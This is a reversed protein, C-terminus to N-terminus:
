SNSPVVSSGPSSPTVETPMPEQAVAQAAQLPASAPKKGAKKKAGKMIPASKKTTKATPAKTVAAKKAAAKNRAPAAKEVARDATATAAKKQARRKRPAEAKSLPRSHEVSPNKATESSAQLSMAQKARAVATKADQLVKRIDPARASYRDTVDSMWVAIKALRKLAKKTKM